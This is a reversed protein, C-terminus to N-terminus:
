RKGASGAPIRNPALPVTCVPRYTLMGDPRTSEMLQLGTVRWQTRPVPLQEPAFGPRCVARRALTLHPTFARRELSFGEARLARALREALAMLEPSQALGLWVLDDGRGRFRGVRSLAASFPAGAAAQMARRAAGIREPPTEGLFALTLHLNEARTLSGRTLGAALGRQVQLVARRLTEDPSVAVFLRM